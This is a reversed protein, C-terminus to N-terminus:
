NKEIIAGSLYKERFEALTVCLRPHAVSRKELTELLDELYVIRVRKRFRHHTCEEIVNVRRRLAENSRPLLFVVIDGEEDRIHWINRLIQYHKLFADVQEYEPVFRGDFRPRYILAFKDLHERDRKASGFSTETYKVEILVRAGSELPLLLDISTHELPDPAYEFEAGTGPNGEIGLANLLIQLYDESSLFPFFLNFCLGQSSNLHHFDTHLKVKGVPANWFAERISPIINSRSSERPLIHGYSRGRWTGQESMGLSDTRYKSLESKVRLDFPDLKLM